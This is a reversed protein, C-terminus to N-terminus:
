PGAPGPSRKWRLPLRYGCPLVLAGAAVPGATAVRRSRSIWFCTSSCLRLITCSTNWLDALQIIGGVEDPVARAVRLLHKWFAQSPDWDAGGGDFVALVTRGGSCGSPRSGSSSTWYERASGNAPILETGRSICCGRRPLVM